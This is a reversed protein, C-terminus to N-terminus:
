ASIPWASKVGVSAFVIGLQYGVDQKALTNRLLHTCLCTNRLLHSSREDLNEDCKLHLAHIAVIIDTVAILFLFLGNGIKGTGKIALLLAGALFPIQQVTITGIM